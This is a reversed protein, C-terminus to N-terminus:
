AGAAAADLLRGKDEDLAMRLVDVKPALHAVRLVGRFPDAGAM